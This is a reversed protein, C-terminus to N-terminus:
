PTYHMELLSPIDKRRAAGLKARAQLVHSEVTRVSLFLQRSIQANTLGEAILNCIERERTTLVADPIGVPKAADPLRGPSVLLQDWGQFASTVQAVKALSRQQQFLARAHALAHRATGAMGMNIFQQGVNFLQEPDQDMRARAHSLIARMVPTGVSPLAELRTVADAPNMLGRTMYSQILRARYWTPGASDLVQDDTGSPPVMLAGLAQTQAPRLARHVQTRIERIRPSYLNLGACRGLAATLGMTFSWTVPFMASWIESEQARINSHGASYDGNLIRVTSMTSAAVTTAM